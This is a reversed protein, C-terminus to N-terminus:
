RAVTSGSSDAHCYRAASVSRKCASPRSSSRRDTRCRAVEIMIQTRHEAHNPTQVVSHRPHPVRRDNHLVAELTPQPLRPALHPDFQAREPRIEPTSSSFRPIKDGHTRRIPM